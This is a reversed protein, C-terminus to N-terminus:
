PDFIGYFIDALPLHDDQHVVLVPLVFAVQGHGGLLHRGLGDVEHRAEAPAEDAERQRGVADLLELERHHDLLVRAAVAGGEGDGDLGTAPHGRADAGGVTGRGDVLGQPGVDAGVVEHAGAVDEGQTRAVAPHEHAGPLGLAGDIESAEGAQLRRADDAFDHVVVARHRATRVELAERRLVVEGDEADRLEDLVPEGV